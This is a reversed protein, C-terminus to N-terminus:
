MAVQWCSLQAAWGGCGQRQCRAPTADNNKEVVVFVVNTTTTNVLVMTGFLRSMLDPRETVPRGVVCGADM